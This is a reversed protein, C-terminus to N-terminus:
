QYSHIWVKTIVVVEVVVVVALVVMLSITAGVDVSTIGDYTNRHTCSGSEELRVLV